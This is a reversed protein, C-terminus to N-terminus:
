SLQQLCKQFFRVYQNTLNARTPLEYVEFHGTPVDVIRSYENRKQLHAMLQHAVEPHFFTDRTAAVMLVPISISTAKAIPRYMAVGLGSSASILPSNIGAQKIRRNWINYDNPSLVMVGIDSSNAEAAIPIYVPSFGLRRRLHDLAGLWVMALSRLVGRAKIAQRATHKADLHPVQAVICQISDNASTSREAALTLVYGGSMSTGLLGITQRDVLGGLGSETIREIVTRWDNLASKVSFIHRPEGDSLGFSRYDFTLAAIGNEALTQAYSQLTMDQTAGFGPALVVVPPASTYNTFRLWLWGRLSENTQTLKFSIPYKLTRNDEAPVHTRLFPSSDSAAFNHTHLIRQTERDWGIEAAPPLTFPLTICFALLATILGSIILVREM